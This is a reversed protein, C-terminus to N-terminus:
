ERQDLFYCYNNWLQRATDDEQIWKRIKTPIGGYRRGYTSSNPDGYTTNGYLAKHISTQVVGLQEAMENQTKGKLTLEWVSRQRDTMMLPANTLVYDCLEDYAIRICKDLETEDEAAGIIAELVQSDVVVERHLYQTPDSKAM